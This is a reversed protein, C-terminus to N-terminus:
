QECHLGSYYGSRNQRDTQRDTKEDTMGDCEPTKDLPIFMRRATKLM